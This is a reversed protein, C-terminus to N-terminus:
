FSGKVLLCSAFQKFAAKAECSKYFAERLKMYFTPFIIKLSMSMLAFTSLDTVEFYDLWSFLLLRTPRDVVTFSSPNQALIQPRGTM